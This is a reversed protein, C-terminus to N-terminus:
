MDLLGGRKCKWQCSWPFGSCNVKGLKVSHSIVVCCCSLAVVIPAVNVDHRGEAHIAGFGSIGVALSDGTFDVIIDVEMWM